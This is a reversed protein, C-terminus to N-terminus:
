KSTQGLRPKFFTKEGQDAHSTGDVVVKEEDEAHARELPNQEGDRHKGTMDDPQVALLTELQGEKRGDAQAGGSASKIQDDGLSGPENYPM